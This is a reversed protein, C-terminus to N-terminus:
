AIVVCRLANSAVLASFVLTVSNVSTHQIECLVFRKSGGTERVYVQSDDTNLNHTIVYSTAAGDGFSTTYKKVKPTTALKLPTVARLDDTGTDTEAQTALEMIGSVTESAAPATALFATFLPTGTGLVFNVVGQRWTTGASTGEDVIVVANELEDSTSAQPARTAPTAAGNWVYIGNEPTTTQNAALFMDGVVMAVGDINAGPSALTVNGPAKVRVNDKWNIGEIATRLQALTVPEQAGIADLLNIIRSQSNFDQDSRVSIVGTM